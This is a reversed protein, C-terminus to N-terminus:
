TLHTSLATSVAGYVRSETDSSLINGNALQGFHNGNTIVGNFMDMQLETACIYFGTGIARLDGYLGNRFREFDTVSEFSDTFTLTGVPEENLSCSSLVATALAVSLIIKKM